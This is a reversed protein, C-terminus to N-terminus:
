IHILASSFIHTQIHVLAIICSSTAYKLMYVYLLQAEAALISQQHHRPSYYTREYTHIHISPNTHQLSAYIFSIGISCGHSLIQTYTNVYHIYTEVHIPNFHEVFQNYRQADIHYKTQHNVAVWYLTLKEADAEFAQNNITARSKCCLIGCVTFCV